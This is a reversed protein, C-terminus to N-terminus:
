DEFVKYTFSVGKVSSVIEALHAELREKKSMSAWRQQKISSLCSETSTMYKYADRSINLSQKAPICKRTYFTILERGNEKTYVSITNKDTKAFDEVQTFVKKVKGKKTTSEKQITKLCEEKSFLTRGPLVISLNVKIDDM